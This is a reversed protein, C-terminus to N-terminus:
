ITFRARTRRMMNRIPKRREGSRDNIIAAAVPRPKDVRSPCNGGACPLSYSAPIFSEFRDRHFVTDPLKPTGDPHIAQREEPELITILTLILKLIEAKHEKLFSFFDQIKGGAQADYSEQTGAFAQEFISDDDVAKLLAKKTAPDDQRVAQVRLWSKFIARRFIKSERMAAPEYTSYIVEQRQLTDERQLIPAAMALMAVVYLLSEKM